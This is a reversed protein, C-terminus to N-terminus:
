DPNINSNEICIVTIPPFVLNNKILIEIAKWIDPRIELQDLNLVSNCRKRRILETAESLVNDMM